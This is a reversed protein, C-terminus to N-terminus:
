TRFNKTVIKGNEDVLNGSVMELRYESLVLNYLARTKLLRAQAQAARADLLELNTVVGNEYQKDALTVAENAQDLQLQTAELKKKRATVDEIAQNVEISLERRVEESYSRAAALNAQAQQEKFHTAYGDFLPINIGVGAVWNFKPQTLDPIYGDKIGFLGHLKVMPKNGLAALRSEIEFRNLANLAMKMESRQKYALELWMSNEPVAPLISNFDGKLSIKETSKVGLISKLMLLQKQLESEADVKENQTNSVRVRTTLVDFSTASGTQVRKETVDLHSQLAAIEEDLVEIEKQLFLISYFVSVTQFALRNQTEQKDETAANLGNQALETGTKRKGFDYLTYGVGVHADYNDAPFLSFSGMDPISLTPVPGIRSYSLEGEIYPYSTSESLNIGAQAAEIKHASQELLPHSELVKQIAQDLTLSDPQQAQGNSFFFLIFLCFVPNGISKM